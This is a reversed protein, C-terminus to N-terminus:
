RGRRRLGQRRRLDVLTTARQQHDIQIVELHDVVAEPVRDTVLQELRHGLAQTGHEVGADGQRAQTAVLEGHQGFATRLQHLGRRQGLPDDVAELLREVNSPCRSNMLALMPM